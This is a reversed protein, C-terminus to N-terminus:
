IIKIQSARSLAKELKEEMPLNKDELINNIERNYEEQTMEESAGLEANMSTSPSAKMSTSPSAKMSTSPSANMFDIIENIKEALEYQNQLVKIYKDSSFKDNYALKQIKNKKISESM